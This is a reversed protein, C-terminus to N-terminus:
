SKSNKEAKGKRDDDDREEFLIKVIMAMGMFLGVICLSAFIYLYDFWSYGM